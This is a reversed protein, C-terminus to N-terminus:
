AGYKRCNDVDVSCLPLSYVDYLKKQDYEPLFDADFQGCCGHRLSTKKVATLRSLPRPAYGYLWLSLFCRLVNGNAFELGPLQKALGVFQNVDAKLSTFGSSLFYARVLLQSPAHFATKALENLHEFHVDSKAWFQDVPQGKTLQEYAGIASNASLFYFSAERNRLTSLPVPRLGLTQIDTIQVDIPSACGNDDLSTVLIGPKPLQAQTYTPITELLDANDSM